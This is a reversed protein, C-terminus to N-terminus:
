AEVNVMLLASVIYDLFMGNDVFYCGSMNASFYAQEGSGANYHRIHDSGTNKDSRAEHCLM